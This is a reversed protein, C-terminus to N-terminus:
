ISHLENQTRELLHKMTTRGDVFRGQEISEFGKDIEKNLQTIKQQKLEDQELLLRLAERVVESASTYFGSAVKENIKNELAPTLSINM